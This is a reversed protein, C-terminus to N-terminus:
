EPAAQTDRPGLGPEDSELSRGLIMTRLDPDALWSRDWEDFGIRLQARQLVLDHHCYEQAILVLVPNRTRVGSAQGGLPIHAVLAEERDAVVTLMHGALRDAVIQQYGHVMWSGVELPAEDGYYMGFIQVGRDHAGVLADQLTDFDERWISIYIERRAEDVIYRSSELIAQRSALTLIESAPQFAALGPLAEELYAIPVDFKQRFRHVLEEPSIAFHQTGSSTTVTHVIGEAALKELTSYVKSSPVEASKAVENGNQPGYRLLGLYVRAEYVSMGLLRLQDVLGENM